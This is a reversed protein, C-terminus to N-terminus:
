AGLLQSNPFHDEGDLTLYSSIRKLLENRLRPEIVFSGHDKGPMHHLQIRPFHAKCHHAVRASPVFHDDDSLCVLADAAENRWLVRTANKGNWRLVSYQTFIDRCVLQRFISGLLRRAFLPMFRPFLVTSKAFEQCEEPTRFPFRSCVEIGEAFCVPDILVTRRPRCPSGENCLVAALYSPLSHCVIDYEYHGCKFQERFLRGLADAVHEVVPLKQIDSMSSTMCPLEVVICGGSRWDRGHEGVFLPLYTFVGLGLGHLFVVPPQRRSGPNGPRMDTWCVLDCEAMPLSIRRFGMYRLTMRALLQISRLFIRLPMPKFTARVESVGFGYPPLAPVQPPYTHASPAQIGLSLCCASTIALLDNHLQPDYQMDFPRGCGWAWWSYIRQWDLCGGGYGISPSDGEATFRNFVEADFTIPANDSFLVKKAWTLFSSAGHPAYRRTNLRRLFRRFRWFRWLEVLLYLGFARTLKRLSLQTM